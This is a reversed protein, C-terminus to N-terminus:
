FIFILAYDQNSGCWIIGIGLGAAGVHSAQWLRRKKEEISCGTV